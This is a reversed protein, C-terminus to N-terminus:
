PSPSILRARSVSPQAGLALLADGDVDGVAVEGRRLAAEDDGVRGAVRLVRAVHDGARGGGVDGDHEDVGAVAHTSCVRRCANMAVRSPTCAIASATM